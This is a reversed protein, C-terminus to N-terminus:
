ASDGEYDYSPSQKLDGEGDKGAVNQKMDPPYVPTGTPGLIVPQKGDTPFTYPGVLYGIGYVTPTIIHNIYSCCHESTIISYHTSM